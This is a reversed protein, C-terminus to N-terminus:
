LTIRKLAELVESTSVQEMCPVDDKYEFGLNLYQAKPHKSVIAFSKKGIPGWRKVSTPGHIGVTNLEMCSAIHMIGTNVSVVGVAGSLIELTKSLETGAVNEIASQNVANKLEENKQFDIPAGTLLVKYGLNILQKCVEAWQNISLEKLYSKEGGASLHCVVYKQKAGTNTYRVNDESIAPMSKPNVGIARLINRYNELEHIANSHEVVSDYIYHRYQGDTKFGVSHKAKSLWTFFSNIRPWAGFDLFLDIEHQRLLKISKLLNKIPLKEVSHFDKLLKAFSYNSAGTFLIIKANPYAAKLDKVIGTLLVTDGIAATKLLAITQIKAPLQNKIKFLGLVFILPIGVWKDLFKLLASGREASAETKLTMINELKRHVTISCIFWKNDILVGTLSNTISHPNTRLYDQKEPYFVHAVIVNKM